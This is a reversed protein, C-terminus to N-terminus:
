PLWSGAQCVGCGGTPHLHHHAFAPVIMGTSAGAGSGHGLRETHSTNSASLWSIYSYLVLM